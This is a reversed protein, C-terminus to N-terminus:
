KLKNKNFEKIVHNRIFMELDLTKQKMEEAYKEKEQKIQEIETKWKDIVDQNLQINTDNLQKLLDIEKKELKGLKHYNSWHNNEKIIFQNKKILHKQKKIEEQIADHIPTMENNLINKMQNVEDIFNNKTIVDKIFEVFISNPEIIYKVDTENFKDALTLENKIDDSLTNNENKELLLNLFLIQNNKEKFIPENAIFYDNFLDDKKNNLAIQFDSDIDNKLKFKFFLRILILPYVVTALQMITLFLTKDKLFIM